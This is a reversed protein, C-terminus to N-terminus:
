APTLVRDRQRTYDDDSLDGSEHLSKLQTLTEAVEAPGESGKAASRRRAILVLAAAAVFPIMMIGFMAVVSMLWPRLKGVDFRPPTVNASVNGAAWVRFRM